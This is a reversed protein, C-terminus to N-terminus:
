SLPRTALENRLSRLAENVEAAARDTKRAGARAEALRADAEAEDALRRAEDYDKRAMANEASQIKMRARDLESPAWQVIEPTGAAREVAKRGVAMQETPPPTSACAGLVLAAACIPIMKM